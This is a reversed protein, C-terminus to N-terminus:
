QTKRLFLVLVSWLIEDVYRQVTLNGHIVVLQSRGTLSIAGWVMVSGRGYRYHESICAKLFRETPLRRVRIRGDHFDLCFRSEDSFVIEGWEEIGWNQRARCWNLRAKRYVSGLPIRTLLRRSWLGLLIELWYVTRLSEKVLGDIGEMFVPPFSDTELYRLATLFSFIVFHHSYFDLTM